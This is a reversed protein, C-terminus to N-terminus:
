YIHTEELTMPLEFFFDAGSDPVNEVGITGQHEEVIKRAIALGLGSSSEGGTPRASLKQFHKFLKERDQESIGPGQDRVSCQAREGNQWVRIDVAKGRSSYKIANGVLNDIVQGMRNADFAFESVEQVELNLTIDKKQAFFRQIHVREEILKQLSDKKLKLKLQGSEIISIDLLNSLLEVMSESIMQIRRLFDVRTETNLNKDRDLLFKSYGSINALPNRLDHSAMGLFKNKLDNLEVLKYNASTLEATRLRVQNEVQRTRSAMIEFIIALLLTIGFIGAGASYAPIRSFGNRFDTTGQWRLFWRRNAINIVNSMDLPPNPLLKGFIIKDAEAADGDFIILRMGKPLYRNLMQGIMEEIRYIGMVFGRLKKRRETLAKPIKGGEYFPVLFLLEAREQANPLFGYKSTVLAQGSDGAERLLLSLQPDSALDLGLAQANADRPEAYRVPFYEEREAAAIREKQSSFETIQFGEPTGAEREVREREAPTIRPVWQFARIFRHTELLPRVYVGFEERSVYESAYYLSAIGFIERELVGMEGALVLTDEIVEQEMEQDWSTKERKWLNKYGVGSLVIGIILIWATQPALRRLKM